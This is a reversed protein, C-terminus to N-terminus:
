RTAAPPLAGPCAGTTWSSPPAQRSYPRTAPRGATATHRPQHRPHGRRARGPDLGRLYGPSRRGASTRRGPSPTPRPRTRRSTASTGSSTRLGRRAPLGPVPRPHRGVPQADLALAGRRRGPQVRATGRPVRGARLRHGHLRHLPDPGREGAAQLLVLEGARTQKVGTGACGAALLAGHARLGHRHIPPYGCRM